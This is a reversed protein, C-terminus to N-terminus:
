HSTGIVRVLDAYEPLDAYLSRMWTEGLAQARGEDASSDAYMEVQIADDEARWGRVIAIEAARVWPLGDRLTQAAHRVACTDVHDRVTALAWELRTTPQAILRLPDDDRHAGTFEKAALAALARARHEDIRDRDFVVEAAHHRRDGLEPAAVSAGSSIWVGTCWALPWGDAGRTAARLYRDVFTAVAFEEM